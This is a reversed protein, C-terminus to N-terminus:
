DVGLKNVCFLQGFSDWQKNSWPNPRTISVTALISPDALVAPGGNRSHSAEAVGNTGLRHVVPDRRPKIPYGESSTFIM